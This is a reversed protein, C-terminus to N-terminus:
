PILADVPLAEAESEMERVGFRRMGRLYAKRIGFALGGDIEIAAGTVYRSSDSALWVAAGAVDEATGWRELPVAEIALEALTPNSLYAQHVDTSIFGPCLANARVGYPGWEAAMTKTLSVVGAKAVCYPGITPFSRLGGLSAVNIVSGDGQAMMSPGLRRCFYFVSSLNLKLVANWGRDGVDTLHSQFLPGGANNVLVDIRGLRALADACARDVQEIDTVDCTIALATRGLDRIDGAIQELPGLSRALVAVDAGARGLAVAIAAGIGRSAGTVLAKKGELSFATDGDLGAM